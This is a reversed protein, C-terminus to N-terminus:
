IKLFNLWMEQKVLFTGRCIIQPTSLRALHFLHYQQAAHHIAGRLTMM